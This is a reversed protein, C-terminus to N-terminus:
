GIHTLAKELRSAAEDIEEVTQAYYMNEMTIWASSHSMTAEKKERQRPVTLMAACTDMAHCCAAQRHPSLAGRTRPDGRRM